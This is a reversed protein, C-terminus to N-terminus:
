SSSQEPCVQRKKRWSQLQTPAEVPSLNVISASWTYFISATHAVSHFLDVHFGNAGDLENCNYGGIQIM